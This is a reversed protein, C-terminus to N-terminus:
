LLGSDTISMPEELELLSIKRFIIVLLNYGIMINGIKSDFM